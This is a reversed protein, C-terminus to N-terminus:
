ALLLRLQWHRRIFSTFKESQGSTWLAIFQAAQKNNLPDLLYDWPLKLM